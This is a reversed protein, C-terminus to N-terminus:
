ESHCVPGVQLVIQREMSCNENTVGRPRAQTEGALIGRPGERWLQRDSAVMDESQEVARYERLETQLDSVVGKSLAAAARRKGDTFSCVNRIHKPAGDWM